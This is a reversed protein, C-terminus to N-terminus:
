AVVSAAKEFLRDYARVMVDLSFEAEAKIRNAQGLRSRLEASGFLRGLAQALQGEDLAPVIFPRNPEAVISKIDGVDTAAAPLGAAMAELLGYPMQETDSSMAFIDLGALVTEPRALYGTFAVRDSIGLSEALRELGPREPGEGCIVLRSHGAGCSSFARILRKLNKEPRLAACTGVALEGAKKAFAWESEPLSAGFRAMEVGNPLYQLRRQPIGWERRAIRELNRSPVVVTRTCILSIRRLWARRLFRRRAEDPGFGDEIHIHPLRPGILNGLAWELAGWNYTVLVDPRIRRLEGAFRLANGIPNAPSNAFQVLEYRVAETLLSAAETRGSMSAIFHRYKPGLRDALTAFRTQPGGVAFTSFAHLLTIPRAPHAIVNM